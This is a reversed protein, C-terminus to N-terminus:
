RIPRAHEGRRSQVRPAMPALARGELAPPEPLGDLAFHWTGMSDWHHPIRMNQLAALLPGFQRDLVVGDLWAMGTWQQLLWRNFLGACHTQLGARHSQLLFCCRDELCGRLEIRGRRHATHLPEFQGDLFLRRAGCIQLAALQPEFPGCRRSKIRKGQLEALLPEFPEDLVFCQASSLEM